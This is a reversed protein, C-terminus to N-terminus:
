SIIMLWIFAGFIMYLIMFASLMRLSKSKLVYERWYAFFTLYATLPLLYGIGLLHYPAAAFTTYLFSILLAILASIKWFNSAMRGYEINISDGKRIKGPGDVKKPTQNGPGKVKRPIRSEPDEPFLIGTFGCNHCKHYNNFLGTVVLGPNSFDASVDQSGCKPCFM